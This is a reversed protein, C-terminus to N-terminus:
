PVISVSSIESYGNLECGGTVYLRVRKGSAVAELLTLFMQESGPLGYDQYFTKKDKCGSPNGADSLEVLFRGHITPTLETVTAHDTWGAAALAAAPLTLITALFALRKPLFKM